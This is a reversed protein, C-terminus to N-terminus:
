MQPFANAIPHVELSSRETSLGPIIGSWECCPGTENM